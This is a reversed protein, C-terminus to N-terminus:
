PCIGDMGVGPGWGPFICIGAPPLLGIYLDGNGWGDGWIDGCLWALGIGILEGTGGLWDGLGILGTDDGAWGRVGLLTGPWEGAVGVGVLGGVGPLDAGWDATACDVVLAEFLLRCCNSCITIGVDLLM